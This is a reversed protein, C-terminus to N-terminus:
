SGIGKKLSSERVILESQLIIKNSELMHDMQRPMELMGILTNIAVQGVQKGQYNVTTLEPDIVCSIADNNFGAFAIDEPIRIGQKKLARMCHVATIDNACFVADPKKAMNMIYQAAEQGAAENLEDKVFLLERAPKIGAETLADKYGKIRDAYVNRLKNGGLHLIRKCGQQLLHETVNRAARYNDISVSVCSIDPVRDFFVIPIKNSFFPEFHALDTTDASLSVLLGDVRKHFMLSANSLEKEKHEMSQSIILQYNKGAAITDIASLAGSMFYSNLRPVLVGLTFTKKTRLNSAFANFRYGLQLAADQIRKRTRKNIAPNDKLGRSVTAASLNLYKAIDYITIEKDNAM